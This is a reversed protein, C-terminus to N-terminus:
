SRVFKRWRLLLLWAIACAAAISTSSFFGLSMVFFGTGCWLWLTRVLRGPLWGWPEGFDREDSAPMRALWQEPVFCVAVFCVAPWLGLSIAATIFMGFLGVSGCLTALVGFALRFLCGGHRFPWRMVDTPMFALLTGIVPFLALFVSVLWLRNFHFRWFEQLTPRRWHMIGCNHAYALCDPEMGCSSAPAVSTSEPPLEAVQHFAGDYAVCRGDSGCALEAFQSDAKALLNGNADAVVVSCPDGGFIGDACVKALTGTQGNPLVTKAEFLFYPRHALAPATWVTGCIAVLYATKSCNNRWATVTSNVGCAQM